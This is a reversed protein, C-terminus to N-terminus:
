ADKPAASSVARAAEGLALRPDALRAEERLDTRLQRRAARAEDARRRELMRFRRESREDINQV